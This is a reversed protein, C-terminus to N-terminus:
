IGHTGEQLDTLTLRTGDSSGQAGMAV